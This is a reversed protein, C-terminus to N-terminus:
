REVTDFFAVPRKLGRAHAGTIECESFICERSGVERVAESGFNRLSSRAQGLETTFVGKAVISDILRIALREKNV